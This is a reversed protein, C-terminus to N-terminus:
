IGHLVQPAQPQARGPLLDSLSLSRARERGRNLVWYIHVHVDVCIYLYPKHGSHTIEAFVAKGGEQDSNPFINLNILVYQM